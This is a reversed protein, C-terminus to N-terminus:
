QGVVPELKWEHESRCSQSALAAFGGGQAGGGFLWGQAGFAGFPNPASTPAGGFPNPYGGLPPGLASTRGFVATCRQLSARRWFSCRQSVLHSDPGAAKDANDTTSIGAARAQPVPLRSSLGSDIFSFDSSFPMKFDSIKLDTKIGVLGKGFPCNGRYQPQEPVSYKECVKLYLIHEQGQYKKLLNDVESVKEPRKAKYIATIRDRYEEVVTRERVVEDMITTARPKEDGNSIGALTGLFEVKKVPPSRSGERGNTVGLGTGSARCLRSTAEGDGFVGPSAATSKNPPTFDQMAFSAGIQGPKLSGLPGASLSFSTALASTAAEDTTSIGAAKDADDTLTWSSDCLSLRGLRLDEIDADDTTSIGASDISSFNSLVGNGTTSTTSSGFDSSFPMKFDSIKLDTKIGVFGKGFPRLHDQSTAELWIALRSFLL